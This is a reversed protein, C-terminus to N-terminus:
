ASIGLAAAVHEYDYDRLCYPHEDHRQLWITDFRAERLISKCRMETAPPLRDLISELTTRGVQITADALKRPPLDSTAM